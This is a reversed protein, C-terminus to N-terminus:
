STAQSKESSGRGGTAVNSVIAQGGDNVTVHEVRVTQEGAIRYRKLAELQANDRQRLEGGFESRKAQHRQLMELSKAPEPLPGLHSVLALTVIGPRHVAGRGGHSGSPRTPM